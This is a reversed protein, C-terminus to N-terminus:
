VPQRRSWGQDDNQSVLKLKTDSCTAPAIWQNSPEGNATISDRGTGIAILAKSIITSQDLSCACHLSSVTCVARAELVSLVRVSLCNKHLGHHIIIVIMTQCVCVCVCIEKHWKNTQTRNRAM